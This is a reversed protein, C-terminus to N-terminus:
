RDKGAPPDASRDPPCLLPAELPAVPPGTLIMDLARVPGVIRQLRVTGCDILPVAWRRCYVGFVASEATVRLDCWLALELGGAVAHGEVAAIVPKELLMRTPGMPGPGDPDYGASIPLACTQVGTVLACM